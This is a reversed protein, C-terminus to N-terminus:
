RPRNFRSFFASLKNQNGPRGMGPRGPDGRRNMRQRGRDIMQRGQPSRFFTMVRNMFSSSAM